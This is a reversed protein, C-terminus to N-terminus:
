KSGEWKPQTNNKVWEADAALSLRKVTRAFAWVDVEVGLGEKLVRACESATSGTTYVDDVLVVCGAAAPLRAGGHLTISGELNRRRGDFGLQKQASTQHHKCLFDQLPMGLSRSLARAYLGAQNYGRCLLKSNHLPVYTLTVVKDQPTLNAQNCALEAMYAALRRQGSYKLRHVLSRAPGEFVFAACASRFHLERSRCEPCCEPKGSAEFHGSASSPRGCRRCLSPGLPVLMAACDPCLWDGGRGCHVCRIPFLVSGLDSFIGRLWPIGTYNGDAVADVEM